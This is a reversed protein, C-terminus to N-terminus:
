RGEIRTALPTGDPRIVVTWTAVHQNAMQWTVRGVVLDILTQAAAVCEPDCVSKWLHDDSENQHLGDSLWECVQEIMMATSPALEAPDLATWEHIQFTDGPTLGYDDIHIEIASQIDDHLYEADPEGYLRDPASM